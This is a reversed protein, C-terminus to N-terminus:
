QSKLTDCLMMSITEVLDGLRFPKRLFSCHEMGDPCDYASMVLVPIQPYRKNLDRVFEHGTMGPMRIDTILLDPLQRDALHTHLYSLAQPANEFETVSYGELELQIVLSRRFNQDDDVLVIHERM